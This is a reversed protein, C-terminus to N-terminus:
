ELGVEADFLERFQAYRGAGVAARSLAYVGKVRRTRCKGSVTALLQSVRSDEAYMLLVGLDDVLLWGEGPQVHRMGRAVGISVGTLDSPGVRPTQWVRADTDVPTASVPVVGVNSPDGGADEVATEITSPDRGVAVVLLNSLAESPLRTIATAMPPKDVIAQTGPALDLSPEAHHRRSSSAAESM